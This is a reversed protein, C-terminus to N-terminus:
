RTTGPPSNLRYLWIRSRGDRDHFVQELEVTWGAQRLAQVVGPDDDITLALGNGPGRGAIASADQYFRVRTPDDLCYLLHWGLSRNWVDQIDSPGRLRACFAAFGDYSPASRSGVPAQGTSAGRLGAPASVAIMLAVVGLTVPRAGGFQAALWALGVGSAVALPPLLYLAYRDYVPSRFVVLMAAYGAAFALFAAALGAPARKWAAAAAGVAGVGVLAFAAPAFFFHVYAWWEGARPIWNSAAEIGTGGINDYEASLFWPVHYVATRLWMIGLLLGAVSTFGAALRGLRSAWNPPRAGLLLAAALPLYALAFLKGGLALGLVAGALGPRDRLALLLGACALGVTLPDTFVTPGFLSGFPSLAVLAGALTGAARGGLGAALAYTCAILGLGAALDPLRITLPTEGLYRITVGLVWFFVPTKDLPPTVHILLWDGAAVHRGYYAHLAEDVHMGDLNSAV